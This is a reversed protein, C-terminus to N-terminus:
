VCERKNYKANQSLLIEEIKKLGELALRRGEEITMYGTRQIEDSYITKVKGNEIIVKSEAITNELTEM